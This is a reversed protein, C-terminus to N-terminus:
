NTKQGAQVLPDYPLEPMCDALPLDSAKRQANLRPGQIEAETRVRIDLAGEHLKASAYLVGGNSAQSASAKTGSVKQRRLLSTLSAKRKTRSMKSVQNDTSTKTVNLTEVDGVTVYQPSVETPEGLDPVDRNGGSKSGALRVFEHYLDEDIARSLPPITNIITVASSSFSPSTAAIERDIELVDRLETSDTSSLSATDVSRPM